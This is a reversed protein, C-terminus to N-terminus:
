QLVIKAKYQAAFESPTFLQEGRHIARVVETLYRQPEVNCIKCSEIISYLIQMTRAGRKSHNGYYNKRGVVPGRLGRESLNNDIPLRGDDLFHTLGKYYKLFYGRATGLASEPLCWLTECYRKMQELIPKSKLNRESFRVDPPQGKIEREINYLEGYWNIMPKVEDPFRTEAEIWKRRAHANCYLNKISTGRTCKAYGCYADSVLYDADCNKLFDGAVAAARTNHAEYYAGDQNFFGWLQWNKTDDGELMKWHTEDAQLFFSKELSTKLAGYVPQLFDALFHTQEILSQPSVGKLGGREAQNVYREIPLHDCYKAVAVDIAIEDSFGSGPKIRPIAPATQIDGHCKCCRLKQRKQRQVYYIKQTVSIWESNETQGSMPTLKGDCLKCNPEKGEEFEVLSERLPVDPYRLSPLLVRPERNKKNKNKEAKREIDEQSPRKESSSGYLKHRIILLQDQIKLREQEPLDLKKLLDQWMKKMLELSDYQVRAHKILEEKSLSELMTLAPTEILPIQLDSMQLLFIKM